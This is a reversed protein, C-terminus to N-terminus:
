ARKSKLGDLKAELREIDQKTALNLKEIAHHVQKAVLDELEKRTKASAEMLDAVFGERREKEAQGREVLENYLKEARERTMSLAGMGALVLKEVSELM